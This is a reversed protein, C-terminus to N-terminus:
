LFRRHTLHEPGVGLLRGASPTASVITTDARLVLVMDSAHTFLARLRAEKAAIERTSVALRDAM